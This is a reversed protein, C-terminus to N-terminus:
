FLLAAYSLISYFSVASVTGLKILVLAKDKTSNEDSAFFYPLLIVSWIISFQTFRVFIDYIMLSGWTFCLIARYLSLLGPYLLEIRKNVSYRASYFYLMTLMSLLCIHLIYTPVRIRITDNYVVIQFYLMQFFTINSLYKLLYQFLSIFLSWLLALILAFREAKKKGHVLEFIVALILITVMSSHMLCASVYFMYAIIINKKPKIYRFYIGYFFIAFGLGQRVGTVITFMFACLFFALTKDISHKSLNCDRNMVGYLCLMPAFYILFATTATLLGNSGIKSILYFYSYALPQSAFKYYKQLDAFSWNRMEDLELFHRLLDMDAIPIIHYSYLAIAVSVLFFFPLLYKKEVHRIGEIVSYGLLLIVM